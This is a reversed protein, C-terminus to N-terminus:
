AMFILIWLVLDFKWVIDTSPNNHEWWLNGPIFIKGMLSHICIMLLPFWNFLQGGLNFPLPLFSWLFASALHYFIFYKKSLLFIHFVSICSILKTKQLCFFTKLYLSWLVFFHFTLDLSQSDIDWGWPYGPHAWSTFILTSYINISSRITDYLIKNIQVKIWKIYAELPWIYLYTSINGFSHKTKISMFIEYHHDLYELKRLIWNIEKYKKHWNKQWDPQNGQKWELFCRKICGGGLILSGRRNSIWTGKSRWIFPLSM